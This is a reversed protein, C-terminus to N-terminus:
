FPAVTVTVDLLKRAISAAGRVAFGKERGPDHPSWSKRDEPKVEATVKVHRFDLLADALEPEIERYHKADMKRETVTCCRWRQRFAYDSAAWRRTLRVLQIGERSEPQFRLTQPKPTKIGIMGWMRGPLTVGEPITKQYEKGLYHSIYWGACESNKVLEASTGARLHKDDGSGVVEFWNLAVWGRVKGENWGDPFRALLHFHPAGRSQYELAWAFCASIRRCRKGFTDLHRKVTRGDRPWTAPYTLCIFLAGPAILQPTNEISWRLRRSARPSLGHVNGRHAPRAPVVHCPRKVRM